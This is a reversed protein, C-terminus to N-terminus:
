YATFTRLDGPADGARSGMAPLWCDSTESSDRIIKDDIDTINMVWRVEYGGVTRLVRQLVDAAVFGRMNGIHAVNYVRPGCSYMRITQSGDVPTVTEVSRSLTNYLSIPHVTSM